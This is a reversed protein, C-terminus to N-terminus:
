DKIKGMVITNYYNGDSLKKDKKLIGEVKFGMKHYLAIAKTNTELVTLTIKKIDQQEAWSISQTLLNTGIRHKWYDSLVCVGFEVKHALRKLISGECRSYGVIQDDAVAVWFLNRVAHGDARILQVFEAEGMFAEGSERDMNETEGDIRVRIESLQSADKTEASRISYALGNVFYNKETIKM